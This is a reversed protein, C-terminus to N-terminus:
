HDKLSALALERAKPLLMLAKQVPLDTTLSFRNAETEGKLAMVLDFKLRNLVFSRESEIQPSSISKVSTQRIYNEFSRVLNEDLASGSMDASTRTFSAKLLLGVDVRGYIADRTFFFLANAIESELNSLDPTKVAEDPEIGDGGFVPRNASTRSEPGKQATAATRHAYYDYINGDSYDRQISRGSPTFYRGTTLTLGAGSPCDFLSQVLGKGFTRDGVILARDHDQLAGALIESASATNENVLLVLPVKEPDSNNSRWVRNDLRSRGRQTVIVSGVPLFKEAVRVAEELIGGPNERLDIILGKLPQRHLRKLAGSVESATTYNFGESLAIYGIEGPMVFSDRVSPQPVVRRIVEVTEVRGSAAKEITLKLRTGAGGRVAASVDSADRGTMVDSGVKVIRDGYSLKASAAPSGHVTGVVYTDMQGGRTFNAITAGIGSYESQQEELFETFESPDFYSSHPDLTLLAGSITSKAVENLNLRQGDAHNKRIVDLAESLDGLIRKVQPTKSTTDATMSGGSSAFFSRNPGIDFGDGAPRKQATQQPFAGSVTLAVLLSLSLPRRM